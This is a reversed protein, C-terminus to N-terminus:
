QEQVGNIIKPIYIEVMFGQDEKGSIIMEAQNGYYIQIREYINKLGISERQGPEAINGKKYLKQRIEQLEEMSAGKGNDSVSLVIYDNLLSAQITITALKVQDAFGHKFCNEVIPQLIMKPVLINGLGPSVHINFEFQEDFRQKQLSLYAQVHKIEMSFPVIDEQMNMSYRMINSLSTLLSYVNAAKSKLALTGISQLSNYLFHPNIQSRLVRLQSAKNEIELKYEKDILLNIKGIMSKFHKGLMGIEDNGLSDFDAELQGSEVKKMNAILVKIPATVKVSVLSTVLLVIALAIVGILSNMVVTERATQYLIAYPIRKAIYWDNEQVSFKQFVIVGSFEDDEWEYSQEARTDLMKEYWAETMGNGIEEKTSSYIIKKKDDVIYLDEEGATYLREAISEIRSLNIDISLYGLFDEAPINRIINHFSLVNNKESNPIESINNYSYIEHPAEILSYDAKNTKFQAYYPHDFVNEYKVRGSIKSHYNTYSDKGNDIYLHMQEIETRTNFLYALLRRVEEENVSSDDEIGNVLVNMFPTYRYLVSSMQAIDELYVSLEEEGKKIFDYNTTVSREKISDITYYYTIIIGTGFPLITAIMLLLILKKRIGWRMLRTLLEFTNEGSRGERRYTRAYTHFYSCSKDAKHV